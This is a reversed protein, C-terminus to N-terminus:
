MQEVVLVVKPRDVACTLQNAATINLEAPSTQVSCTNFIDSSRSSESALLDV